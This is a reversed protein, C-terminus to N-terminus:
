GSCEARGGHSLGTDGTVDAEDKGENGVGVPRGRGERVSKGDAKGGSDCELPGPRKAKSM